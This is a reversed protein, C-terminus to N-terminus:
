CMAQSVKMRIFFFIHRGTNRPLFSTPLMANDISSVQVSRKKPFDDYATVANECPTLDLRYAPHSLTQVRSDAM